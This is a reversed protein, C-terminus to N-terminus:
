GARRMVAAVRESLIYRSLSRREQEAIHNDRVL